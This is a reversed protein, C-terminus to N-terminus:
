RHSFDASGMIVLKELTRYECAHIITECLTCIHHYELAHPRIYIQNHDMTTNIDAGWMERGGGM